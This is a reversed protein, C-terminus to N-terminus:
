HLTKRLKKNTKQQRDQRRTRKHQRQKKHNAEDQRRRQSAERLHGQSADNIKTDKTEHQKANKKVSKQVIAVNQM